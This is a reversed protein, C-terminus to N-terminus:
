ASRPPQVLRYVPSLRPELCGASALHMLIGSELWGTPAPHGQSSEPHDDATHVHSAQAAAGAELCGPLDVVLMASGQLALALACLGILVRGLRRPRHGSTRLYM